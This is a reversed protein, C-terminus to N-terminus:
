TLLIMFKKKYVEVNEKIKDDLTKFSFNEIDEEIININDETLVSNRDLIVRVNEILSKDIAMIKSVMLMLKKQYDLISNQLQDIIKEEDTNFRLYERVSDIIDKIKVLDGEISAKDLEM